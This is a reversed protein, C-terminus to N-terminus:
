ATEATLLAHLSAAPILTRNGVKVRELRGKSMLDFLTTRGLGSVNCAATINYALPAVPQTTTPRPRRNSATATKAPDHSHEAM